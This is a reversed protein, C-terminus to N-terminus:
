TEYVNTCTYYLNEHWDYYWVKDFKHMFKKIWMYVIQSVFILCLQIDWRAGINVM